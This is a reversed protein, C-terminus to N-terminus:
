ACFHSSARLVARKSKLHYSWNLRLRSGSVARRYWSAVRGLSGCFLACKQEIHPGFNQEICTLLWM